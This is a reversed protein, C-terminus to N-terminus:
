ISDEISIDEEGLRVLDHFGTVSMLKHIMTVALKLDNYGTNKGERYKNVIKLLNLTEEKHKKKLKEIYTNELIDFLEMISAWCNYFEDSSNIDQTTIIKRLIQSHLYNYYESIDLEKKVLVMALKIKDLFIPNAM